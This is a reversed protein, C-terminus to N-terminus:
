AKFKDTEIFSDLNGGDGPLSCDMDDTGDEGSRLWFILSSTHESNDSRMIWTSSFNFNDSTGGEM